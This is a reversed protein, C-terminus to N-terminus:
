PKYSKYFLKKNGTNQIEKKKKAIYEAVSEKYQKAIQKYNDKLSPDRKMRKYILRKRSLIKRIYRPYFANKSVKNYSVFKHISLEIVKTLEAYAQNIDTTSKFFNKWQYSQLFNNIETFNARHFNRKRTKPNLKYRSSTLTIEIMNHDCSEVFPERIDLDIVTQPQSTIFLDLINGKKHTPKLIMQTLCHEDLFDQFLSYCINSTDFSTSNWNMGSLNFDGLIYMPHTASQKPSLTTITHILEQVKSPEKTSDPPLYTCIYRTSTHSSSCYDFALIDFGENVRVNLLVINSALETKLLVAVGGGKKGLRDSRFMTYTSNCVIASTFHFPKLWTESLFIFDFACQSLLTNLAALKNVISRSNFYLISFKSFKTKITPKNSNNQTTKASTTMKSSTTPSNMVPTKLTENEQSSRTIRTSRTGQVKTSNASTNSPTQQHNSNTCTTPRILKKPSSQRNENAM